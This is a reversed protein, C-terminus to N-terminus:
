DHVTEKLATPSTSHSAAPRPRQLSIQGSWRGTTTPSLQADTTHWDSHSGHNLLQALQQLHVASWDQWHLQLRQGSLVARLGPLPHRLLWQHLEAVTMTQSAAVMPQPVLSQRKLYHQGVQTVGAPPQQLHALLGHGVYRSILQAQQLKVQELQWAGFWQRQASEALQELLYTAPLVSVQATAQVTSDPLAAASNAGAETAGAELMQQQWPHIFWVTLLLATTVVIAVAIILLWRNRLRRYVPLQGLADISVLTQPTTPLTLEAAQQWREPLPSTVQYTLRRLPSPDGEECCDTDASDALALLQSFSAQELRQLRGHHWILLLSFPQESIIICVEATGVQQSLHLVWDLEPGSGLTLWWQGAVRQVLAHSYGMQQVRAQVRKKAPRQQGWCERFLEVSADM